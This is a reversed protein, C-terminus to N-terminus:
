RVKVHCLVITKLDDSAHYEFAMQRYRFTVRYGDLRGFTGGSCDAVPGNFRTTSASLQQVTSSTVPVGILKSFRMLVQTTVTAPVPRPAFPAADVQSLLGFLALVVVVGMLLMLISMELSCTLRRM